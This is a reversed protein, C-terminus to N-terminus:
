PAHSGGRRITPHTAFLKPTKPVTLDHTPRSWRLELPSV